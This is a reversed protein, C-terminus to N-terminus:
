ARQGTEVAFLGFRPLQSLRFIIVSWELPHSCPRIFREGHGSSGM